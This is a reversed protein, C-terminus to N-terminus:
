PPSAENTPSAGPRIATAPLRSVDVDGAHRAELLAQAQAPQLALNVSVIQPARDQGVSGATRSSSDTRVELVQVRDLVLSTHGGNKPSAWVQIWDGKRLPVTNPPVPLSAVTQDPAVDDRPAVQAAGIPLGAHLDEPAVQGVLAATQGPHLLAVYLADDLPTSRTTFDDAALIAGRPVDHTVVVVSREAVSRTQYMSYSGVVAVGTLLAGVVLGRHISRTARLARSPEFPISVAAM